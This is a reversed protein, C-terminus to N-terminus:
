VYLVIFSLKCIIKEANVNMLNYFNNLKPNVNICRYEFIKDGSIAISRLKYIYFIFFFALLLLLITILILMLALYRPTLEEFGM